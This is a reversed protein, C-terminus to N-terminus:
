KPFFVIGILSCHYNYTIYIKKVPYTIWLDWSIIHREFFISFLALIGLTSYLPSLTMLPHVFHLHKSPFFFWSDLRSNVPRKESNSQARTWCRDWVNGLSWHMQKAWQKNQTCHPFIIHGTLPLALAEGAVEPEGTRLKGGCTGRPGRQFPQIQSARIIACILFSSNQESM